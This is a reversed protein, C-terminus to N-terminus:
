AGEFDRQIGLVSGSGHGIKQAVHIGGIVVAPTEMARHRKRRIILRVVRYFNFYNLRARAHIGIKRGALAFVGKRGNRQLSGVFGSNQMFIAHNGHRAAPRIRRRRIEENAHTILRFQIKAALAVRIPLAKGRESAHHLAHVHNALNM